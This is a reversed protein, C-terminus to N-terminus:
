FSTVKQNFFHSFDFFQNESSLSISKWFIRYKLSFVFFGERFNRFPKGM